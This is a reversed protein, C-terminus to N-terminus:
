SGKTGVLIKGEVGSCVRDLLTAKPPLFYTDPITPWPEQGSHDYSSHEGQESPPVITETGKKKNQYIFTLSIHEQVKFCM